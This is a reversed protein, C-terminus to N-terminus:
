DKAETNTIDLQLALGYPSIGYIIGFNIMKAKRRLDKTLPMVIKILDAAGHALIRLEKYPLMLLLDKLLIEETQLKIM